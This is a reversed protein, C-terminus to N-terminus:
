WGGYGLLVPRIEIVGSEKPHATPRGLFCIEDTYDAYLLAYSISNMRMHNSSFTISVERDAVIGRLVYVENIKVVPKPMPPELVTKATTRKNRIISMLGHGHVLFDQSVCDWDESTIIRRIKPPVLSMAKKYLEHIQMPETHIQTSVFRNTRGLTSKGKFLGFVGGEAGGEAATSKEIVREKIIPVDLESCLSHFRDENLYVEATINAWWPPDETSMLPDEKEVRPRLAVDLAAAVHGAM